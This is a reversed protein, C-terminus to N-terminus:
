GSHDGDIVPAQATFEAEVLEDVVLLTGGEALMTRVGRLAEVPRAMDHLAEIITVLDYDPTRPLDAANAVAFSVRDALGAQEAHERAAAVADQDLDFGDVAVRPYAQAIAIAAWGTGCAVDALRAPPDARLRRDIEPIAPLWEKALLNM